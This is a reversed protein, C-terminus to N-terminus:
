PAIGVEWTYTDAGDEGHCAEKVIQSYQNGALIRVMQDIVWDKHHSGDIGGYQVAMSIAEEIKEKDSLPINSKKM